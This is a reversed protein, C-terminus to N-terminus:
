KTVQFIFPVNHTQALTLTCVYVSRGNFHEMVSHSHDVTDQPQQCLFEQQTAPNMIEAVHLKMIKPLTM